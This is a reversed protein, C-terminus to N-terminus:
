RELNEHQRNWYDRKQEDSLRNFANEWDEGSNLEIDNCDPFLDCKGTAPNFCPHSATCAM